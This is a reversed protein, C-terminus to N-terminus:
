TAAKAAAKAAAAAAATVAVILSAACRMKEKLTHKFCFPERVLTYL